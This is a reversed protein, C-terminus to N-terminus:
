LQKPCCCITRAYLPATPASGPKTRALSARRDRRRTSTRCGHRLFLTEAEFPGPQLQDAVSETWGVSRGQQEQVPAPLRALAPALRQALARPPSVAGDGQVQAAMAVAIPRGVAAVIQLQEGVVKARHQALNAILGHHHAGGEAAQDRHHHASLRGRGKAREHEHVDRWPDFPVARALHDVEHVAGVVAEGRQVLGGVRDGGVQGM